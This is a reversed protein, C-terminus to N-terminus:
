QSIKKPKPKVAVDVAIRGNRLQKIYNAACELAAVHDPFRFVLHVERYGVLAVHVSGNGTSAEEGRVHMKGFELLRSLINLVNM